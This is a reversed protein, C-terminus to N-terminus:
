SSPQYKDMEGARDLELTAAICVAGDSMEVAMHIQERVQVGCDRERASRLRNLSSDTLREEHTSCAFYVQSCGQMPAIPDSTLSHIYVDANLVAACFLYPM